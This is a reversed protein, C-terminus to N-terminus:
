PPNQSVKYVDPEFGNERLILACWSCTKKARTSQDMLPVRQIVQSMFTGPLHKPFRWHGSLGKAALSKWGFWIEMKIWDQLLLTKM